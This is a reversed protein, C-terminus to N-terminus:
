MANPVLSYIAIKDTTLWSGDTTLEIFTEGPVIPILPTEFFRNLSVTGGQFLEDSELFLPGTLDLIPSNGVYVRISTISTTRAIAFGRLLGPQTVPYRGNTASTAINGDSQVFMPYHTTPQADTLFGLNFTGAGGTNDMDLEVAAARPAFGLSINSGPPAGFFFPITFRTATAGPGAKKGYRQLFAAHQLENVNWVFRGGAKVVINNIADYDEDTGGLEVMFQKVQTGGPIDSENWRLVEATTAAKAKSPGRGFFM